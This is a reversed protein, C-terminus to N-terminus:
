HKDKTYNRFLIIVFPTTLTCPYALGVTFSPTDSGPATAIPDFPQTLHSPIKKYGKLTTSGTAVAGPESM